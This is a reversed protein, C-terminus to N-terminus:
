EVRRKHHSARCISGKGKRESELLENLRGRHFLLMVVLTVHTDAKCSKSPKLHQSHLWFMFYHQKGESGPSWRAIWNHALFM